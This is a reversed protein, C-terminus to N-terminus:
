VNHNNKSCKAAFHEFIQPQNKFVKRCFSKANKTTKKHKKLNVFMWWKENVTNQMIKLHVYM